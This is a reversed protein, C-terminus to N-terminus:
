LRFLAKGKKTMMPFVVNRVPDGWAVIAKKFSPRAFLKTVYDRVRPRSGWLRDRLGLGEFRCLVVGWEIDALSFTEGCLWGNRAFPGHALRHELQELAHETTEMIELMREPSLISEETSKVIALKGEYAAKLYADDAHEKALETLLEVKKAPGSKTLMRPIFPKKIGPIDGYTIAEVFLADAKNLFEEMCEAEDANLPVLSPGDRFTRDVYRLINASDTTVKGDQVLTPVVCRPNIRVYSPEYQEHAPLLIVHSEWSAHKEELVQRVHQSCLSLPFHYLHLGSQPAYSCKEDTLPPLVAGGIKVYPSENSM